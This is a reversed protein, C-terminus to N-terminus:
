VMLVNVEAALVLREGRYAQMRSTWSPIRSLVTRMLTKTTQKTYFAFASVTNEM